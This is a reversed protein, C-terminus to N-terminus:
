RKAGPSSTAWVAIDNGARAALRQYARARAQVDSLPASGSATFPQSGTWVMERPRSGSVVAVVRLHVSHIRGPDGAAEVTEKAEVVRLLIEPGAGLGDRRALGSALASQLHDPLGAEPVSARVEGVSYTQSATPRGLHCGALLLCAAARRNVLTRLMAINGRDCTLM